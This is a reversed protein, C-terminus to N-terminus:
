VYDCSGLTSYGEGNGQPYFTPAGYVDSTCYRQTQYPDIIDNASNGDCDRYQVYLLESGATVAYETCTTVPPTGTPTRTPTLTPDPTGEPTGSPTEDPTSTPTVQPTGTNSPTPNPTGPPTTNPTPEPSGPIPTPNPTNAPTSDPTAAPSVGPSSTVSPTPTNSPTNSPTPSPPASLTLSYDYNCGLPCDSSIPVLYLTNISEDLSLSLGAALSSSSVTDSGSVQVITDPNGCQTHFIIFNADQLGAGIYSASINRIVDAM